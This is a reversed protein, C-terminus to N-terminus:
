HLLAVRLHESRGPGRLQLHYVGAPLDLASRTWRHEHVGPEQDGSYLQRVARGASDFLRLSVPGRTETSYVVALEHRVPNGLSRLRVPTALAGPAEFADPVPWGPDGDEFGPSSSTPATVVLDITGAGGDIDLELVLGGGGDPLTVGTFEGVLTSAALIPFRDGAQFSAGALAVVELTGGLTASGAVSLRDFDLSAAGGDIELVLTGGSQTWNGTVTLEGCPNSAGPVLSRDPSLAGSIQHLDGVLDACQFADEALTASPTELSRCRITGVGDAVSGLSVAETIVLPQSFVGTASDLCQIFPALAGSTTVTIPVDFQTTQAALRVGGSNTEIGQIEIAGTGTLLGGSGHLRSITQAADVEANGGALTLTSSSGLDGAVPVELVGGGLVVYDVPNTPSQVTRFALRGEAISVIDVNSGLSGSFEAEGAGTKTLTGQSVSVFTDVVLDPNPPGNEVSWVGTAVGASWPCEIRATQDSAQVTIRGSQCLIAGEGSVKGGTLRIESIVELISGDIQLEGDRRIDPISSSVLQEHEISQLRASGATGSGDGIQVLGSGYNNQLIHHLRLTGRHIALDAPLFGGTLTLTNTADVVLRDGAGSNANGLTLNGTGAYTVTGDFDYRNQHTRTGQCLVRSGDLLRVVGFPGVPTGTELELTGSRIEVSSLANSATLIIAGTGEATLTGSVLSGNFIFDSDGATMLTGCEISGNFILPAPDTFWFQPVDVVIPNNVAQIKPSLNVIGAVGVRIQSGTLTYTDNTGSFLIGELVWPTDARPFLRGSDPFELNALGPNPPVVNNSWNLADEFNNTTPSGGDWVHFTQARAPAPGFSLLVCALACALASVVVCVVVSVPVRAQVGTQVGAQVGGTQRFRHIAIPNM